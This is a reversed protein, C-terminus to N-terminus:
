SMAVLERAPCILQHSEYAFGSLSALGTELM